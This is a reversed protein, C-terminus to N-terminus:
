QFVLNVMKISHEINIIHNFILIFDIIDEPSIDDPQEELFNIISTRFSMM